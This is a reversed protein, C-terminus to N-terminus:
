DPDADPRRAMDLYANLKTQNISTVTARSFFPILYREIVGRDAIALKKHRQSTLGLAEVHALYQRAVKDFSTRGELIGKEASWVAKQYEQEARKDAEDRDPTKLGIRKQGHGPLSFRMWFNPSDKRQFVEYPKKPSDLM